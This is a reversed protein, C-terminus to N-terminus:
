HARYCYEAVIGEIHGVKLLFVLGRNTVIEKLWTYYYLSSVALFCLVSIPFADLFFSLTVSRDTFPPPPYSTNQHKFNM